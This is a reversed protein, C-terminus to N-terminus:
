GFQGTFTGGLKAFADDPNASAAADALKGHVTGLAALADDMAPPAGNVGEVIRRLYAFHAEVPAGPVEPPAAAAKEPGLLKALRDLSANFSRARKVANAAAQQDGKGPEPPVTLATERAVSQILLKLPSNPGSLSKTVSVAQDLTSM